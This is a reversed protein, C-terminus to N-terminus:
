ALSHRPPLTAAERRALERLLLAWRGTGGGGGTGEQARARHARSGERAQMLLWRGDFGGRPGGVTFSRPALWKM